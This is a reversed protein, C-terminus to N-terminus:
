LVCGGLSPIYAKPSACLCYLGTDPDPDDDTWAGGTDDCMSETGAKWPSALTETAGGRTVDIHQYESWEAPITAHFVEGHTLLALGVPGNTASAAHPGEFKGTKRVGDIHAVFTGNRRLELSQVHGDGTYAGVFQLVQAIPPHASGLAEDNTSVNGADDAAGGCAACALILLLSARKM